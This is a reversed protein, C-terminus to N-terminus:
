KAEKGAIASDIAARTTGFFKSEGSLIVMDEDENQTILQFVKVRADTISWSIFALNDLVFDLREADAKYQAVKEYLRLTDELSASRYEDKCGDFYGLAAVGCAALRMREIELQQRLTTIEELAIKYHQRLGEYDPKTDGSAFVRFSNCRHDATLWGGCQACQGYLLNDIM